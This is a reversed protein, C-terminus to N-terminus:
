RQRRFAATTVAKRAAAAIGARELGIDRLAADELGQLQRATRYVRLQWAFDAALAALMTGAQTLALTVPDVRRARNRTLRLRRPRASYFTDAPFTM